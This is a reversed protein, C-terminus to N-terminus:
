VARPREVECRLAAYGEGIAHRM